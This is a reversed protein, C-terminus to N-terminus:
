DNTVKIHTSLYYIVFYILPYSFFTSTLVLSLTFIINLKHFSEINYFNILKYLFLICFLGLFGFYNLFSIISIESEYLSSFTCGLIIVRLKSYFNSIENNCSFSAYNVIQIHKDSFTQFQTEKLVISNDFSDINSINNEFILNIYKTFYIIKQSLLEYTIPFLLLILYACITILIIYTALLFNKDLVLYILLFFYYFFLILIVSITLTSLIMLTFILFILGHYWRQVSLKPLSLIGLFLISSYLVPNDFISNVRYKVQVLFLDTFDYNIQILQIFAFPITILAFLFFIIQSNRKPFHIFIVLLFAPFIYNRLIKLSYEFSNEFILIKIIFLSTLFLFIYLKDLEIKNFFKLLIITLIILIIDKGYHIISM